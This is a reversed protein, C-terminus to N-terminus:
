LSRSYWAREAIATIYEPPLNRAFTTSVTLVDGFMDKPLQMLRLARMHSYLQHVWGGIALAVVACMERESLSLSTPRSLVKGYGEIIMWQDLEPSLAQFNQRFREYVSGYIHKCLKTGREDFLGVDYEEHHHSTLEIGCQRAIDRATKLAEISAPFGAFLYTQLLAEYLPEGHSTRTFYALASDYVLQQNGLTAGAVACLLAMTHPKLGRAHTVIYEINVTPAIDM